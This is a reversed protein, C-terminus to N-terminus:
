LKNRVTNSVNNYAHLWIYVKYRETESWDGAKPMINYKTERNIPMSHSPSQQTPTQPKKPTGRCPYVGHRGTRPRTKPETPELMPRQDRMRSRVTKEAPASKAGEERTPPVGVDSTMVGRVHHGQVGGRRPFLMWHCADGQQCWRWSYHSTDDFGTRGGAWYWSSYTGSGQAASEKM